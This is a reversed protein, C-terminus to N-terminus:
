TSDTFSCFGHGRHPVSVSMLELRDLRNEMWARELFWAAKQQTVCHLPCSAMIDNLILWHWTWDIFLLDRTCLTSTHLGAGVPIWTWIYAAPWQGIGGWSEERGSGGQRLCVLFHGIFVCIFSSGMYFRVTSPHGGGPAGGRAAATRSTGGRSSVAPDRSCHWQSSGDFLVPSQPLAKCYCQPWERDQSCSSRM